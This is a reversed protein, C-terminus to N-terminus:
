APGPAPERTERETQTAEAARGYRRALVDTLLSLSSISLALFTAFAALAVPVWALIIGIPDPSVFSHM